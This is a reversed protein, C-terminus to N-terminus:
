RIRLRLLCPFYLILHLFNFVTGMGSMTASEFLNRRGSSYSTFFTLKAGQDPYYLHEPDTFIEQRDLDTVLIIAPWNIVSGSGTRGPCKQLWQFLYRLLNFNIFYQIKVSQPDPDLPWNFTPLKGVVGFYMFVPVSYTVGYCM